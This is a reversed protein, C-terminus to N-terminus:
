KFEWEAKTPNWHPLRDTNWAARLIGRAYTISHDENCTTAGVLSGSDYALIVESLAYAITPSLAIFRAIDEDMCKAVDGMRSKSPDVCKRVVTNWDTAFWKEDDYRNM